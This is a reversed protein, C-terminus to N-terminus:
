RVPTDTRSCKSTPSKTTWIISADNTELLVQSEAYKARAEVLQGSKELSKAEAIAAKAQAELEKKQTKELNEAALMSSLAVVLLTTTIIRM